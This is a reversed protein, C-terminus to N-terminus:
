YGGTPPTFDTTYRAVSSIRFGDMKGKFPKDSEYAYEGIRWDTTTTYDKITRQIHSGSLVGNVYFNVISGNRVLAFHHWTNLSINDINLSSSTTNDVWCYVRHPYSISHGYQIALYNSMANTGIPTTEFFVQQSNNLTHTDIKAFFEITFDGSMDIKNSGTITLTDGSGDFIASSTGYKYDATTIQADGNATVTNSKISSDTFTTSGNAGKFDLLLHTHPDIAGLYSEGMSWIGANKKGTSYPVSTLYEYINNNSEGAVFLKEQNLSLAFSLPSPQQTNSIANVTQTGRTTLDYPTSLPYESIKGSYSTTGSKHLVYLNTGQADFCFAQPKEGAISHSTQNSTAIDGSTIVFPNALPCSIIRGNAGTTWDAVLFYIVTGDFNFQLDLAESSIGHITDVISISNTNPIYYKNGITLVQVTGNAQLLYIKEGTGNFVFSVATITLSHNTWSSATSLDNRASLNSSRIISNGGGNPNNEDLVFITSGAPHTRICQNQIILDGDNNTSGSGTSSNQNTYTQNKLTYSYYSDDSNYDAARGIFGGNNKSNYGM